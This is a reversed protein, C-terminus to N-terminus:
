DLAELSHLDDDSWNEGSIDMIEEDPIDYDEGFEDDGSGDDDLDYGAPIYDLIFGIEDFLHVASGVVYRENQVDRISEELEQPDIPRKFELLDNLLKVRMLIIHDVFEAYPGESESIVNPLCFLREVSELAKVDARALKVRNGPMADEIRFKYFANELIDDRFGYPKLPGILDVIHDFQKPDIISLCDVDWQIDSSVKDVWWNFDDGLRAVCWELSDKNSVM